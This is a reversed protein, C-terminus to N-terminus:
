KRRPKISLRYLREDIHSALKKCYEDTLVNISSHDNFGSNLRIERLLKQAKAIVEFAPKMPNAKANAFKSARKRIEFIWGDMRKEWEMQFRKPDTAALEALYKTKSAMRRDAAKGM